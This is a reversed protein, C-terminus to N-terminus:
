FKTPVTDFVCTSSKMQSILKTLASINTTQFQMFSALNNNSIPLHRPDPSIQSRVNEIKSIFHTAFKEAHDPDLVSSPPVYLATDIM